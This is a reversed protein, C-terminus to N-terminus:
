SRVARLASSRGRIGARGKWSTDWPDRLIRSQAEVRWGALEVVKRMGRPNFVFWEGGDRRADLRALPSPVFSLPLSITDLLLLTRAVRGISRLAGVPDEVVQLVYGMFAVDFDGELDYVSREEYPVNSEVADFVTRARQQFPSPRDTALVDAAGRREMEFAWFGDATGIDLCRAGRLDPWPVADVLPARDFGDGWFEPSRM